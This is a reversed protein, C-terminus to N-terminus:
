SRAEQFVYWGTPTVISLDRGAALQQQFASRLALRWALGNDPDAARLGQFDNPVFVHTGEANGIVPRNAEDASLAILAAGAKPDQTTPANGALATLTRESTLDWRALLRDSRDGANIADIMVGYFDPYYKAVRAGLKKINFYVNRRQMPDFTWAIEDIGHELAWARQHVKVAFGGGHHRHTDLLGTIHSHLGRTETGALFSVSAGVMADTELDYVGAIYSECHLLARMMDSSVPYTGAAYGWITALTQAADALEETSELLAVRVGSRLAAADALARADALAASTDDAPTLPRTAHTTM